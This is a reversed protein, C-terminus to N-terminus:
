MWFHDLCYSVLGFIEGTDPYSPFTLIFSKIVHHLLFIFAEYIVAVCGHVWLGLTIWSISCISATIGFLNGQLRTQPQRGAVSVWVNQCQSALRPHTYHKILCRDLVVLLLTFSSLCTTIQTLASMCRSHARQQFYFGLQTFAAKTVTLCETRGAAQSVNETQTNVHIEQSLICLISSETLQESWFSGKTSIKKM